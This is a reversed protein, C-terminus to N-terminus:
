RLLSLKEILSMNGELLWFVGWCLVELGKFCLGQLWDYSTSKEGRIALILVIRGTPLTIAAVM